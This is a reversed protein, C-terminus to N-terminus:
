SLRVRPDIVAYLVDVILNALIIFIAGLLTVGLVKPLDNNNIADIAYKGLGPLSFTSEDRRAPARRARFQGKTMRFSTSVSEDRRLGTLLDRTETIGDSDSARM